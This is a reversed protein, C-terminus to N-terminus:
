VEEVLNHWCGLCGLAGLPQVRPQPTQLNVLWVYGCGHLAAGSYEAAGGTAPGMPGAPCTNTTALPVVPWRLKVRSGAPCTKTTALPFLTRRAPHLWSCCAFSSVCVLPVRHLVTLQGGGGGKGASMLCFDGGAPCTHWVCSAAAEM